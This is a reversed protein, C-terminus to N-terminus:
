EQKAKEIATREVSNKRLEMLQDEFGQRDVMPHKEGLKRDKLIAANEMLNNSFGHASLHVQLPNKDRHVLSLMTDISRTFDEAQEPGEIANMGLGGVTFAQYSQEGDIVTYEYSATGPTHGPTFYATFVNDGLTITDGDEIVLDPDIMKWERPSGASSDAEEKAEAFGKETMVFRANPMLAKLQYAGGAHDFHGHTMLVYKIDELEVGVHKLNTILQDVYPGYLTDILVAGESTKVVWSSVWCIGVYDVNDFAKFPEVYQAEPDNLWALLDPPMKGTRGFEEFKEAIPKSECGDIIDAYSVNALTMASCALLAKSLSGKLCPYNFMVAGKKDSDFGDQRV